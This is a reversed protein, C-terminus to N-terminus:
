FEPGILIEPRCDTIGQYVLRGPCPGDLDILTTRIYKGLYQFPLLNSIHSNSIRIHLDHLHLESISNVNRM